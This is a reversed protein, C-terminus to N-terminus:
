PAGGPLFVAKHVAAHDRGLLAFTEPARELPLATAVSTYRIQRRALLQLAEPFCGSSARSGHLTVEKRTLDLGPFTVTEGRKALGVIIIRGGAAVLHITQEMVAPAGTAEMVVPMGEGSTLALVQDLLNDPSLATAGLWAATELRAPNIDTAWVNAGAARAVEVIALGIPGTGLVLVKDGAKVDGRRCSQVGIALPETFSAEVMSLGDPVIHLNEVPACVFEAFGGERHIGVIQLSSCCNPKGVRCAYCRGCGIFPEVVVKTGPAPGSTGPGLAVVHGAIEHGAIRPYSVYPSKGLYIYLDGACLGAAGVEVLAEGSKPQPADRHEIVLEFPARFVAARM